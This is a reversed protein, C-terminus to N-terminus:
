ENGKGGRRCNMPEPACGNRVRHEKMLEGLVSTYEGSASEIEVGARELEDGLQLYTTWDRTLRDVGRVVLVDFEGAQAMERLRTLGPRDLQLGSVGQPDESIAAVIVYGRTRAYEGCAEIQDALRNEGNCLGGNAVRAYLMARKSM